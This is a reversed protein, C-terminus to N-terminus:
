FSIWCTSFEAYIPFVQRELKEVTSGEVIYRVHQRLCCIHFNATYSTKKKETTRTMLTPKQKQEAETPIILAIYVDVFIVFTAFFVTCTATILIIFSPDSPCLPNRLRSFFGVFPFFSALKENTHLIHARIHIWIEYFYFKIRFPLFFNSIRACYVRLHLIYLFM